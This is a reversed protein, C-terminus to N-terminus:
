VAAPPHALTPPQPPIIPGMWMAETLKGPEMYYDCGFEDYVLRGNVEYVSVVDVYGQYSIWYLGRGDPASKWENSVCKGEVTTTTKVSTVHHAFHPGAVM